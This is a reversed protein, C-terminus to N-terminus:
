EENEEKSNLYEECCELCHLHNNVVTANCVVCYDNDFLSLHIVPKKTTLEKESKKKM